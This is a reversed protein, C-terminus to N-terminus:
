KPEIGVIEIRYGLNFHEPTLGSPSDLDAVVPHHHAFVM